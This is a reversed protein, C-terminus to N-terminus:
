EDEEETIFCNGILTLLNGLACGLLGMWLITNLDQLFRAFLLLAYSCILLIVWVLIPPAHKIKLKQTFFNFITKHLVACVVIAIMLMGSGISRGAGHTEVWLPFRECISWIPLVCSIIISIVKFLWFFLKNKQAQTM